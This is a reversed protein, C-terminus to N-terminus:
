FNIETRLTFGDIDYSIITQVIMGQEWMHEILNKRQRELIFNWENDDITNRNRNLQLFVAPRNDISLPTEPTHNVLEMFREQAIYAPEQPSQEEKLFKFGM